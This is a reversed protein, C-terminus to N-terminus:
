ARRRVLMLGAGALALALAGPEPIEQITLDDFAILKDNDWGIKLSTIATSGNDWGIFAGDGKTAVTIENDTTVATGNIVDVTFTTDDVDANSVFLGAKVIQLASDIIIEIQGSNLSSQVGASGFDPGSIGLASENNFFLNEISDAVVTISSGNRNEIAVEADPSSGTLNSFNQSGNTGSGDFTFVQPSVFGSDTNMLAASAAGGWFVLALAALALTLRAPLM